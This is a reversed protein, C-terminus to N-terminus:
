DLSVPDAPRDRPSGRAGSRWWWTPTEPASAGTRAPPSRVAGPAWRCAALGAPSNWPTPARPRRTHDVRRRAKGGRWRCWWRTARGDEWWASTRWLCRALSRRSWWRILVDGESGAFVLREGPTLKNGAWCRLRQASMFSVDTSRSAHAAAELTCCAKAILDWRDSFTSFYHLSFLIFPTWAVMHVYLSFHALIVEQPHHSSHPSYPEFNSGQHRQCHLLFSIYEWFSRVSCSRDSCFLQNLTPGADFSISWCGMLM